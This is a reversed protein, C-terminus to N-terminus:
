VQIWVDGVSKRTPAVSAISIAKDNLMVRGNNGTWLRIDGNELYNRMRFENTEADEYGIYGTREERNSSTTTGKVNFSLIGYNKYPDSRLQLIEASSSQGQIKVTGASNPDINLIDMLSFGTATPTIGFDNFSAGASKKIKVAKSFLTEDKSMIMQNANNGAMITTTGAPKESGLILNGLQAKIQFDYDTTSKHGMYASNTGKNRQFQMYTTGGSTKDSGVVMSQGDRFIESTSGGEVAEVLKNWHESKIPQGKTARLTDLLVGM